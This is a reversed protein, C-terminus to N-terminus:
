MNKLKLPILNIGFIFKNWDDKLMKKLCDVFEKTNGVTTQAILAGKDHHKHSEFLYLYNNGSCIVMSKDMPETMVMAKRNIGSILKSETIIIIVTATPYEFSFDITKIVEEVFLNSQIM